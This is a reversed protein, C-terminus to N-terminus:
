WKLDSSSFELIIEADFNIKNRPEMKLDFEVSEGDQLVFLDETSSNLQIKATVDDSVLSLVINDQIAQSSFASISIKQTGSTNNTIKVFNTKLDKTLGSFGIQLRYDTNDVKEQVVSIDGSNGWMSEFELNKSSTDGLVSNKDAVAFTSEEYGIPSLAFTVLSSIVILGLLMTVIMGDTFFQLISKM